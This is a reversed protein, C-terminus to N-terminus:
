PIQDSYGLRQKCIAQANIEILVRIFFRRLNSRDPVWSLLEVILVDM